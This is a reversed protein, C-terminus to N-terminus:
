RWRAVVQQRQLLVGADAHLEGAATGIAALEAVDDHHEPPPRAGFLRLLDAPLQIQQPFSPHMADKEHVVIQDAVLSLGFPQEAVQGIVLLSVVVAEDEAGLHRQIQGRVILQQLQKAGGIEAPHEDADLRRVLLAELLGALGLVQAV